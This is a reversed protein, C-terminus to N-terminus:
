GGASAIYTKSPRDREQQNITRTDGIVHGVGCFQNELKRFPTRRTRHVAANAELLDDVAILQLERPATAVTPWSHGTTSRRVPRGSRRLTGRMSRQRLYSVAGLGHEAAKFSMLPSTYDRTFHRRREQAVTITRDRVQPESTRTASLRLGVGDTGHGIHRDGLSWM